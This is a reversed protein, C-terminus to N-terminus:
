TSRLTQEIDLTKNVKDSEQMVVSILKEKLYRVFCELLPQSFLSENFNFLRPRLIWRGCDNQPM